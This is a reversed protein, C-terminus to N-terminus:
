LSGRFANSLKALGYSCDIECLIFLNCDHSELSAQDTGIIDLTAKPPEAIDLFVNGPGTLTSPAQRSNNLPCLPISSILMAM